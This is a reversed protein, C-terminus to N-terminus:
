NFLKRHALEGGIKLDSSHCRSSNRFGKAQCAITDYENEFEENQTTILNLNM